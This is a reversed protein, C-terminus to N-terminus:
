NIKKNLNHPSWPCAAKSFAWMQKIFAVAEPVSVALDSTNGPIPKMVMISSELTECCFKPFLYTMYIENKDWYKNIYIIISIQKISKLYIMM